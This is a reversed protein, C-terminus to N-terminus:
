VYKRIKKKEHCCLLYLTFSAVFHKFFFISNKSNIFQYKDISSNIATREPIISEDVSWEAQARPSETRNCDQLQRGARRTRSSSCSFEGGGGTRANIFLYSQQQQQQEKLQIRVRALTHKNTNLPTLLKKRLLM